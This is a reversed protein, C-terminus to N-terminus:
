KKIARGKPSVVYWLAYYAQGLTDGAKADASYFYLPHRNYTVQLGAPKTRRVTDLLRANVGQGARPKGKTLFPPWLRTCSLFDAKCVIRSATEGPYLYLTRGRGDVLIRGLKSQAVKVTARSAGQSASGERKASAASIALGSMLLALLVVTSLSWKSAMIDEL